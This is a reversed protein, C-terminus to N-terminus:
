TPCQEHDDEKRSPAGDSSQQEAQEARLRARADSLTSKVTGASIGLAQAVEAVSMDALHFLTLILRQRSPLAGIAAKLDLLEVNLDPALPTSVALRERRFRRTISRNASTANNIAM